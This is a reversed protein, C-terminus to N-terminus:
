LKQKMLTYKNNYKTMITTHLHTKVAVIFIHTSEFSKSKMLNVKVGNFNFSLQGVSLNSPKFWRGNSKLSTQAAFSLSNHPNSNKGLSIHVQKHQPHCLPTLTLIRGWQFAFKNTSHIVSLHSSLFEGGSFHLSTQASSSLSTHPNSDEGM